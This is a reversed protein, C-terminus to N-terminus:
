PKTPKTHTTKEAPKSENSVCTVWSVAKYITNSIGINFKAVDVSKLTNTYTCADTKTNSEPM